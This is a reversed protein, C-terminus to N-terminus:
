SIKIYTNLKILFILWDFRVLVFLVTVAQTVMVFVDCMLIKTTSSDQFDSQIFINIYVDSTTAPAAGAIGLEGRSAIQM